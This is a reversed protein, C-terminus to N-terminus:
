ASEESPFDYAWYTQADLKTMTAQPAYVRAMRLLISPLRMRVENHSCIDVVVIGGNANARQAIPTVLLSAVRSGQYDPTVALFSVYWIRREAHLLPWRTAFYEPSVLPVADLHATVAAVGLVDAAPTDSPTPTTPDGPGAPDDGRVVLIKRVRSDALVEDFEARVMLHRQVAAARLPEFARLYMTWLRDGLDGTVVDLEILHV